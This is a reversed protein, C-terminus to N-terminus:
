RSVSLCPGRHPCSKTSPKPNRNSILYSDTIKVGNKHTSQPAMKYLCVLAWLFGMYGYVWRNGYHGEHCHGGLLRTHVQPVEKASLVVTGTVQSEPWEADGLSMAKEESPDLCRQQETAGTDRLRWGLETEVQPGCPQWQAEKSVSPM